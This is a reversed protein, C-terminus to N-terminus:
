PRPGALEAWAGRLQELVRRAEAAPGPDAQANATNIRDLVFLYLQELQACLEPAAGHDLTAVLETVVAHARQLAHGKAAHDKRTMADEAVRLFRLAGDYLAVVIQVPSATEVRSSQYRAVAFSM